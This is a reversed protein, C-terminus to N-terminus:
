TVPSTAAAPSPHWRAPDRGWLALLAEPGSGADTGAAGSEALGMRRLVSRGHALLEPDDLLRLSAADSGVLDWRHLVLESRGHRIMEEATMDWGTFPVTVGPSRDHLRVIGDTLKLGEVVFRRRLRDDALARYPREREEFDRTPGLDAAPGRELRLGVLRAMEESGAALHAVLDHASWETCATPADAPVTALADLFAALEVSAPLGTRGVFRVSPRFSTLVWATPRALLPPVPRAM